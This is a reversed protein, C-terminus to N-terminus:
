ENSLIVTRHGEDNGIWKPPEYEVGGRGLDYRVSYSVAVGNTVTRYEWGTFKHNSEDPLDPVTPLYKPVLDALSAPYGGNRKKFEEIARVIPQGAKAQAKFERTRDFLLRLGLYGFLVV